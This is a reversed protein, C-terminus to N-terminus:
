WYVHRHNNIDAHNPALAINVTASSRLYGGGGFGAWYDNSNNTQTVWNTVWNGAPYPYTNSNPVPQTGFKNISLGTLPTTENIGVFGSSTVRLREIGATEVTFTDNSPFRIATDIDGSHIIKDSISVDGVFTSVGSVNVNDLETHGDVDLDGNFDANGVFTSIGSVNVNDLETHGDVDLDGNADIAGTFTSVGSVTLQTVSAFGGSVDVDGNFNVTGVDINVTVTTGNGTILNLINIQQLDLGLLLEALNYESQVM